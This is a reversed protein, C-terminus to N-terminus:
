GNQIVGKTELNKKIQNFKELFLQWAYADQQKVQQM